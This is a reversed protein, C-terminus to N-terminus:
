QIESLEANQAPSIISLLILLVSLLLWKMINV